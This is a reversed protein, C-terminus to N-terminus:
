RGIALDSPAFVTNKGRKKAEYMAEDAARMIAAPDAPTGSDGVGHTAVGISATLPFPETQEAIRTRIREALAMAAWRTTNPALITFEDGGWRAAADTERLASRIIRAVQALAESGARHGHRDNIDKLGDLDLFLLTLPEGYRKSRKIEARLRASFGRANLLGTLADTESLEALQDAQRGLIYGFLAFITATAGGVYM